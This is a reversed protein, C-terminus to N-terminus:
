ETVVPISTPAQDELAYVMDEFKKVDARVADKNQIYLEQNAISRSINAGFGNNSDITANLYIVIQGDVKVVGNLNTNKNVELM